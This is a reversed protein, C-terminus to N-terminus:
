WSIPIQLASVEGPFLARFATETTLMVFMSPGTDPSESDIISDVALDQIHTKPEYRIQNQAHTNHTPVYTSVQSYAHM